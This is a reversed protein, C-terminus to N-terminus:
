LITFIFNYRDHLVEALHAAYYTGASVDATSAKLSYVRDAPVDNNHM